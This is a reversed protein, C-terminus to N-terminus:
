HNEGPPQRMVSNKIKGDDILITEPNGLQVYRIAECRALIAKAKSEFVARDKAQHEAIRNLLNDYWAEEGSNIDVNATTQIRGREDDAGSPFGVLGDLIESAFLMRLMGAIVETWNLVRKEAALAAPLFDAINAVTPGFFAPQRSPGIPM